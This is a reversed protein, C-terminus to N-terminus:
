NRFFTLEESKFPGERKVEQQLSKTSCIKNHSNTEM